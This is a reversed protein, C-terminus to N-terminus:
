IDLEIVVCEGVGRGLLIKESFPPTEFPDKCVGICGDTDAGIVGYGDLVLTALLKSGDLVCDGVLLEDRGDKKGKAVVSIGDVAGDALIEVYGDSTGDSLGDGIGERSAGKTLPGDSMSISKAKEM